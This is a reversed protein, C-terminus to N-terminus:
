PPSARVPKRHHPPKQSLQKRNHQQVTSHTTITHTTITHTTITHTNHHHTYSPTHQSPTHTTITHTGRVREEQKGLEEAHQAGAEKLAETLRRTETEMAGLRREAEATEQAACDGREAFQARLFTNERQAEQSFCVCWPNPSFNLKLTM